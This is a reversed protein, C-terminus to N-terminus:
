PLRSSDYDCNKHSQANPKTVQPAILSSISQISLKKGVPHVKNMSQLVTKMSQLVTSIYQLVTHIYQLVTHVPQTISHKNVPPPIQSFQASHHSCCCFQASHHHTYGYHSEAQKILIERLNLRTLLIQESVRKKMVRIATGLRIVGIIELM